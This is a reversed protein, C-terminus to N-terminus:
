FGLNALMQDVEDQSQVAKAAPQQGTKAVREQQRILDPDYSKLLEVLQFQLGEIFAIVKKLTQGTLDQFSQNATLQILTNSDENVRQELEQLKRTIEGDLVEQVQAIAVAQEPAEEAALKLEAECTKLQELAEQIQQLEQRDQEMLRELTDLNFNAADELKTIIQYLKDVADPIDGTSQSLSEVSLEESFENLSNYIDRAIRAIHKVLNHSDRSTTVLNIHTLVLNLDQWDQRLLAKFFSTVANLLPQLRDMSTDPPSAAIKRVLEFQYDVTGQLSKLHASLTELDENTSEPVMGVRAPVQFQFEKKDVKNLYFQLLAVLVGMRSIPAGPSQAYLERHTRMLNLAEKEWAETKSMKDLVTGYERLITRTAEVLSLLDERNLRLNDGNGSAMEM